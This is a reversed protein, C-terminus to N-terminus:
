EHFPVPFLVHTIDKLEIIRIDRGVRFEISTLNMDMIKGPGEDWMAGDEERIVGITVEEDLAIATHLFKSPDRM